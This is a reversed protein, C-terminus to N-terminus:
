KLYKVSGALDGLRRKYYGSLSSSTLENPSLDHSRKMTRVAADYDQWDILKEAPVLFWWGAAVALCVAISRIIWKRMASTNYDVWRGWMWACFSLVVAFYLVGTKSVEPVAKILKVAIFLLIFGVAQKFLEMWKGSKPLRKLLEPMSTLIAYPLAMAVGIVMIGLTALPLPQM